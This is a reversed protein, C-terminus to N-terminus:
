SVLALGYRGVIMAAMIFLLLFTFAWDYGLAIIRRLGRPAPLAGERISIRTMTAFVFVTTAATVLCWPCLVHIVFYSQYFLWGAFLLGGAGLLTAGLQYWRAFRTGSALAVALSFIVAEFAIGMFANPFGFVQAQPTQAVASCSLVSNVDCAFSAASDKALHWAEVSLVMASVFGLLSAVAMVIASRRRWSLDFDPTSLSLESASEDLSSM